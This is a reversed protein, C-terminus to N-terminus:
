TGTQSLEDRVQEAVALLRDRHQKPFLADRPVLPFNKSSWLAKPDFRFKAILRRAFDMEYYRYRASQEYDPIEPYEGLLFGEQLHPRIAEPPCASALRVIQLSAESSATVAGSLNPVGLVFLFAEATADGNSAFSAAIRASQTVDLLPTDCVEYHQLIAWRLVRQRQLREFGLMKEASYRRVLSREARRLVVFRAELTTPTLLKGRNLRFLSAKLTSNGKSSRYDKSQGRFLLVYERNLFQLEALKRALEFYTKVAHGEGARIAPNSAPRARPTEDFYSWIRQSGIKEM